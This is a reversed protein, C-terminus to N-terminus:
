HAKSSMNLGIVGIVIIVMWMISSLPLREGFLRVGALTILVIGIGSWTAYAISMDMYRLAYNLFTFAAGYSAFMTVSPWLRTFGESMKMSVTGSLELAIALALFLWGIGDAAKM